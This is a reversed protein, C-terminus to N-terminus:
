THVNHCNYPREQLTIYTSKNIHFQLFVFVDALFWSEEPSLNRFSGEFKISFLLLHTSRSQSRTNNQSSLDWSLEIIAPQQVSLAWSPLTSLSRWHDHSSWHVVFSSEWYVLTRHDGNQRTRFWLAFHEAVVTTHSLQYKCSWSISAKIHIMWPLRQDSSTITWCKRMKIYYESFSYYKQEVAKTPSPQGADVNM